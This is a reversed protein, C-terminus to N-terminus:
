ANNDDKTIIVRYSIKSLTVFDVNFTLQLYASPLTLVTIVM